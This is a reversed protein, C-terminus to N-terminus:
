GNNGLASSRACRFGLHSAGSDIAGKGRTGVRYRVCYLDSCLLSGGRQVRKPVGPEAPDHSSEPGRPNREPSARYFDPRYWDSCWEWVNGAMDVLGYGNPPFSGVPATGRFGDEVTNESPFGGQWINAMWKGQPKLENGWAYTRRDLKGRAAYEWEAETPLRKGAWKAFALADDFAIHVVPHDMRDDISSGPGEPHDWCAGPVWAWWQHHNNLAVPRGPPTFVLSGPVLNPEVQERPPPTVSAPLSKIIEEYTPKREAITTYGTARVFGAFAANTVETRDMWFGDLTVRHAPSADPFAPDDVGMWFTGGPIWAMGEPAPGAQLTEAAASDVPNGVRGAATSWGMALMGFGKLWRRRNIKNPM